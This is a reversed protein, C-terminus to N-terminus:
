HRSDSKAYLKITADGSRAGFRGMDCDKYMNGCPCSDSEAPDLSMYYNCIPCQAYLEKRMTWGNQPGTRIYELKEVLFQERDNM